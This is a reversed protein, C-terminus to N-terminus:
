EGTKARASGKTQFTTEWRQVALHEPRKGERLGEIHTNSPITDAKGVPCVSFIETAPLSLAAHAEGWGKFWLLCESM